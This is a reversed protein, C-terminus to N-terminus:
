GLVKCPPRLLALAHRVRDELSAEPMADCQAAAHRIQDTRFGLRRLWPRVDRDPATVGQASEGGHADVQGPALQAPMPATAASQTRGMREAARAEAKARAEAAERAAARKECIFGAGFTCEAAYQNHARCRLRITAVSAEGGRAVPNVHDLELRSTAPCRQGNEGVFTCRGQDREWVARRVEAPVHRRSKTARRPRPNSTADCKRKELHRVLLRLARDVVQALDGTPVQHGLLAQAQRLLDHTEQGITLQLAFREPALAALKPRPEEVLEPHREPRAEVQGPALQASIARETAVVMSMLETRPFRRALLGEIEAKPKGSAEAILEGANEKTLHPALLVVASLHLRGTALARFIAPFERAVRAAQIRKYAADESLGLEHVCYSYMSPHAQSRYLQRADVEAIHALLAATTCREQAILSKLDRLLAHDSLHTLAYRSM